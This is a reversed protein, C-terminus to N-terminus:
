RLTMSATIGPASGPLGASFVARDGEPVGTVEIDRSAFLPARSRFTFAAVAREPACRRPLELLSLALLPGHVVLDPYGEVDRAYDRDYHIRHANYTLASFRFLLTPDPRLTFTWPATPVETPAAPVAEGAPEPVPAIGAQKYVLDQEEVTRIEGDVLYDHRVTVLLLWGSGGHRARVSAVESRRTLLDGVRIPARFELRGGGFMRRRDPLPPLFLGGDRPHGDEGLDAQAPRDLMYLWHWLPPLPDGVGLAPVPQDFLGALARVPAATVFEAAEVPGPRWDAEIAAFHEPAGSM